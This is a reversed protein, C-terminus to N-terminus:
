NDADQALLELLGAKTIGGWRIAFNDFNGDPPLDFCPFLAKITEIEEPLTLYGKENYETRRCYQSSIGMTCHYACLCNRRILYRLEPAIDKNPLQICATGWELCIGLISDWIPDDPGTADMFAVQTHPAVFSIEKALIPLALIDETVTIRGIVTFDQEEFFSDCIVAPGPPFFALDEPTLSPSDAHIQYLRYFFSDNRHSLLSHGSYLRCQEKLTKVRAMVIGYCYGRDTRTRFIHGPRVDSINFM